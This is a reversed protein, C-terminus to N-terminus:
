FLSAVVEKVIQGDGRSGLEKMVAGMLKGMAAKDAAGMEDKKARAIREIEDRSAAQPLYTEIIALETLEKEALEPRGGASFQDAAEKRQKALRKLVSIMEDDSLEETPKRGKAVLENTFAALFGRFVNVRLEDKARMADKLENRIRELM